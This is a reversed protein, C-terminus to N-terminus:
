LEEEAEDKKRKKKKNRPDNVTLEANRTFTLPVGNVLRTTYGWEPVVSLQVLPAAHNM